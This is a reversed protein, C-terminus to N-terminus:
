WNLLTYSYSLGGNTLPVSNQQRNLDALYQQLNQEPVKSDYYHLAPRQRALNSNSHTCGVFILLLLSTCLITMIEVAKKPRAVLTLLLLLLCLITM